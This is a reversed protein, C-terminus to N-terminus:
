IARAMKEVISIFELSVTIDEKVELKMGAAILRGIAKTINDEATFLNIIPL